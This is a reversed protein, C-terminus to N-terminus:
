HPERERDGRMELRLDQEDVLDEGDAVRRELALREPLHALDRRSPRM